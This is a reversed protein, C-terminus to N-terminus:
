NRVQRLLRTRIERETGEHTGDATRHKAPQRWTGGAAAGKPDPEFGSDNSETRARASWGHQDTQKHSISANAKGHHNEELSFSGRLGSGRPTRNQNVPKRGAWIERPRVAASRRRVVALKERSAPRPRKPTATTASPAPRHNSCRRARARSGAQTSSDVKRLAGTVESNSTAAPAAKPVPAGGQRMLDNATTSM